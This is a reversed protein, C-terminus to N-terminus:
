ARHRESRRACCCTPVWLAIEGDGGDACKLRAPGGLSRTTATHANPPRHKGRARRAVAITGRRGGVLLGLLGLLGRQRYSVYLYKAAEGMGAVVGDWM